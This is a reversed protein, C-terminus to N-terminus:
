TRHDVDPGVLLRRLVDRIESFSCIRVDTSNAYRTVSRATNAIASDPVCIVGKADLADVYHLVREVAGPLVQGRKVEVVVLRGEHEILLDPRMTTPRPRRGLLRQKLRGEYSVAHDRTTKFGLELAVELIRTTLQAESMEFMATVRWVGNHWDM